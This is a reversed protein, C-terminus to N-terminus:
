PEQYGVPRVEMSYRAPDHTFLLGARRQSRGPVYDISAQSREIEGAGERLVGEVQVDAAAVSAANRVVIRMSYNTGSRSVQEVQVTLRPTEQVDGTVARWGIFGLMAASVLLGVVASARELPSSPQKGPSRADAM